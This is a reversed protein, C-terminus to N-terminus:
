SKARRRPQRRSKQVTAMINVSLEEQRGEATYLVEIMVVKERENHCTLWRKSAEIRRM